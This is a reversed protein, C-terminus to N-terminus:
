IRQPYLENNMQSVEHSQYLPTNEDPHHTKIVNHGTDLELGSYTYM